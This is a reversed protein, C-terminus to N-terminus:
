GTRSHFVRVISEECAVGEKNEKTAIFDTLSQRPHEQNGDEKGRLKNIAKSKKPQHRGNFSKV